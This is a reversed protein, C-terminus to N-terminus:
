NVTELSLQGVKSMYVLEVRMVQMVSTQSILSVREEQNDVMLLEAAQSICSSKCQAWTRKEPSFLYSKDKMRSWRSPCQEGQHPPLDQPMDPCGTSQPQCTTLQQSHHRQQETRNRHEWPWDNVQYFLFGTSILLILCLVGLVLTALQWHLPTASPDKNRWGLNLSGETERCETQQARESRQQEPLNQFKLESYTATKKQRAKDGHKQRKSPDCKLDSYTIVPENMVATSKKNKLWWIM